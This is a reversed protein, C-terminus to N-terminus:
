LALARSVPLLHEDLLELLVFHASAVVASAEESTFIVRPTDAPWAFSVVRSCPRTM